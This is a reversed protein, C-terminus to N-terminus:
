TLAGFPLHQSVLTRRKSSVDSRQRKGEQVALQGCAAQIDEGASSRVMVTLNAKRLKEVFEEMRTRPSPRLTAAFGSPHTFEISHFPIINVKCPFRKSVRILREADADTDNFGDFPIYEFTPRFRTKRYYYEMADMLEEVSFKKTIPMLQTRKANDLTHLSLALKVKRGEDAMQRIKDAYGATSITMHRAGINLSDDHNLIEVTKMVNDYNLMPEGMGMFVINTIRRPSENQAQIVQDVIEGATLNRLFGMTGTACFKCDLPCGVQTSICLTLRKEAAPSHSEPPILVSEIRLGDSLEFLFKTTGDRKSVEKAVIRLNDITAVGELVARFGKSIDTMEAFSQARKGYLWTFIQRARYKKEGLSQVFEQLESVTLGKLNTKDRKM